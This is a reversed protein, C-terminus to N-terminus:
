RVVCCVRYMFFLVKFNLRERRIHGISNYVAVCTELSLETPKEAKNEMCDGYEGEGAERPMLPDFDVYTGGWKLFACRAAEVGDGDGDM